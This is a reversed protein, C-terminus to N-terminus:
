SSARLWAAMSIASRKFSGRSAVLPTHWAASACRSIRSTKVQRRFWLVSSVAPCSRARLESRYRFDGSCIARKNASRGSAMALM